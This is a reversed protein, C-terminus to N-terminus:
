VELSSDKVSGVYFIMSDIDDWRVTVGFNDILDEFEDKSLAEKYKKGKIPISLTFKKDPNEAFFEEIEMKRQQAEFFLWYFNTYEVTLKDPDRYGSEIPWLELSTTGVNRLIRPRESIFGTYVKRSKLTITVFLGREQAKIARYIYHDGNEILYKEELQQSHIKTEERFFITRIGHWSILLLFAVLIYEPKIKQTIFINEIINLPNLHSIYAWNVPEKSILASIINAVFHCIEVSLVVLFFYLLGFVVSRMILKYGNEAQALVALQLRPFLQILLYGCLVPIFFSSVIAGISM